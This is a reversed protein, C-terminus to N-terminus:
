TKNATPRQLHKWTKGSKLFSITAISVNFKLALETMPTDTNNLIEQATENTLKHKWQTEGMRPGRRYLNEGLSVSRWLQGLQIKSIIANTVGYRDALQQLTSNTDALIDLVNQKTLKGGGGNHEGKAGRNREERDRANDALTGPILHQHNICKPNDCTHRIIVGKPIPGNHIEYIYRHMNKNKGKISYQPYGFTNGAHSTCIHCGNENIYYEIPKRERSKM